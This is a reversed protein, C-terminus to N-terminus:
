EKAKLYQDAVAKLAANDSSSFEKLAELAALRADPTNIRLLAIAAKM